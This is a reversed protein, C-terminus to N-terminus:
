SFEKDGDLPRISIEFEEGKERHVGGGAIGFQIDCRCRGALGAQKAFNLRILSSNSGTDLFCKAKEWTGDSAKVEVLVLPSYDKPKVDTVVHSSSCLPNSQSPYNITMNSLM